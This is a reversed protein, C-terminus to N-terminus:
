GHDLVENSCCIPRKPHQRVPISLYSKTTVINTMDIIQDAILSTHRDRCKYLFARLYSNDVTGQFSSLAYDFLHIRMLRAVGEKRTGLAGIGPSREEAQFAGTELRASNSVVPIEDAFVIM